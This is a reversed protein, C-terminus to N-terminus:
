HGGGDPKKKKKMVVMLIVIAGVALGGFLLISGLNSHSPPPTDPHPATTPPAPKPANKANKAAIKGLKAAQITGYVQQFLNGVPITFDQVQNPTYDSLGLGNLSQEGIWANQPIFQSQGSINAARMRQDMDPVDMMASLGM